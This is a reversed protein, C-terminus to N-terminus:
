IKWKIELTKETAIIKDVFCDVVTIKDKISLDSWKDIYDKIEGVSNNKKENETELQLINNQLQNKESDLFAIKENIYKVTIENSILITELLMSIEKEIEEVRIQWEPIRKDFNNEKTESLIKFDQLRELMGEYIIKEVEDADISGFECAGPTTYKHTCIFYRNNDKTKCHYKRAM